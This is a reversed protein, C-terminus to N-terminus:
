HISLIIVVNYCQNESKKFSVFILSSLAAIIMDYDIM